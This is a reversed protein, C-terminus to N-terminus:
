SSRCVLGQAVLWAELTRFDQEDSAEMAVLHTVNGQADFASFYSTGRHVEVGLQAVAHMPIRAFPGALHPVPARTAVLLERMSKSAVFRITRLLARLAIPVVVVAGLVRMWSATGFVLLAAALGGGLVWVIAEVMWSVARVRPRVVLGVPSPRVELRSLGPIM